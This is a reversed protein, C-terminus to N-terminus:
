DMPGVYEVENEKEKLGANLFHIKKLKAVSDMVHM